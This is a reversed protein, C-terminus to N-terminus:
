ASRADAPQIIMPSADFVRQKIAYDAPVINLLTMTHCPPGSMNAAHAADSTAPSPSM